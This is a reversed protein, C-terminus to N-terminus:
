RFIQELIMGFILVGIAILWPNFYWKKKDKNDQKKEIKDRGVNDGKGFHLQSDNIQISKEHKIDEKEKRKEIEKHKPFKEEAELYKVAQDVINISRRLYPLFTNGIENAMDVTYLHQFHAMNQKLEIFLESDVMKVLPLAKNLVKAMVHGNKRGGQDAENVLGQVEKLERLLQNESSHSGFYKEYEHYLEDFVPSIIKIKFIRNM